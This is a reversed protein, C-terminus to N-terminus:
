AYGMNVVNLKLLRIVFKFVGVLTVVVVFVVEELLHHIAVM